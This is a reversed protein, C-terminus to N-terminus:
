SPQTTIGIFRTDATAATFKLMITDGNMDAASLSIKYTGNAVETAPTNTCNAYDGGDISRQCVVTLGTAGTVHDSSLVMVFPFNALAVNKTPQVPLDAAVAAIDALVSVATPGPYHIETTDALRYHFTGNPLLNGSTDMLVAKVHGTAAGTYTVYYSGIANTRETPQVAALLESDDSALILKVRM